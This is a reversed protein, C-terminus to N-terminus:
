SAASLLQDYIETVSRVHRELSFRAVAEERAQDVIRRRLAPDNILQCAREAFADADDPPVIFGTRGDDIAEPNGGSDSAVVPTGLLMAEVLTRGLPEDVAPVMLVDSAAMWPTPPYRYGMMRLDESVGLEAARAVTPEALGEPDDGFVLGRVARPAARRTMAATIDAFMVPRKRAILAGFYSILATDPSVALEDILAKRCASRDAQIDDIDFPSHVVSSNASTWRSGAPASFRSVTILHDATWPAVKNLGFAGPNGRHHWLCKVGALRGALQWTVHMRGDNTHLLRVKRERLFRELRKLDRLFFVADGPGGELCRKVPAPEYAVQERDFLEAVPGDTQHMLVLPRYRKPDLSRILHLASIHSGGVLDGVFPFAVVTPENDSVM